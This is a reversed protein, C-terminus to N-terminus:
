LFRNQLAERKFLETSARGANNGTSTGSPFGLGDENENVVGSSQSTQYTTQAVTTTTNLDQDVLTVVITSNLGVTGSPSASLSGTATQFAVNSTTEGGGSYVSGSASADNYRLRYTAGYYGGIRFLKTSSVTDERNAAMDNGVVQVWTKWPTFFAGNTMKTVTLRDASVGAVEQIESFTGDSIRVVSGTGVFSTLVGKTGNYMNTDFLITTTGTFNTFTSAATRTSSTTIRAATYDFGITGIFTSSNAGTETIPIAIWYTGDPSIEVTDDVADLTAKFSSTAASALFSNATTSNGKVLPIASTSQTGLSVASSGASSTTVFVGTADTPVIWVM